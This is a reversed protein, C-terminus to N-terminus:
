LQKLFDGLDTGELDAETMEHAIRWNESKHWRPDVKRLVEYHELARYSDDKAAKVAADTFYNEIAKRELVHCEIGARGCAQVFAERDSALPEDPASRESDILAFIRDSIRTIEELQVDVDKKILSSGGLMLMVVQHDKGYLRLFQQIAPVETPGEVLLVTTYGLDRYGAFSLEGLLESLRPTENYEAVESPQQSDRRVTYVQNASRALGINHTAFLVGERAYSALTTLFDLQLAPHLNLEPEDILIFSPRRIAANALVLFFQTIGAGMEHLKYVQGDIHLQLTQHDSSPSVHFDSYGFIHKIDEVVRQAAVINRKIPGTSWQSWIEIFAQGVQIDFYGPNGGVNIANRFPGIYLAERLAACADLLLSIDAIPVAGTQGQRLVIPGQGPYYLANTGNRDETPELDRISIIRNSRSVGITMRRACVPGNRAVANDEPIVEMEVMLDRDNMNCFLEDPDLVEPPCTLQYLAGAFISNGAPMLWGFVNRFEYLFRLLSSKGSNNVGIFATFGDRIRIRAPKSDEFCRYNKLTLEIDM